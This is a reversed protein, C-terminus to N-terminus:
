LETLLFLFCPALRACSVGELTGFEGGEYDVDPESLMVDLTLLSGFDHHKDMPIGGGKTVSHYEVCRMALEHREDDLLRWHEADAERAAAFLREHIEPLLEVLQHNFFVTSWSGEPAGQRKHIDQEGASAAVQAAAASLAEIEDPQLFGPVRVVPTNQADALNILRPPAVLRSSFSVSQLATLLLLMSPRPRELHGGGLVAGAM